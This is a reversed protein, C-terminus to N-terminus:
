SQFLTSPRPYIAGEDPRSGTLTSFLGESSRTNQALIYKNPSDKQCTPDIYAGGYVDFSMDNYKATKNIIDRVHDNNYRKKTTAHIAAVGAVQPSAMSTGQLNTYRNLSGRAYKTDDFGGRATYSSLIFDGPAFVDIQPGYNTYTSREFNDSTSLAGVCIVGKANAPSSGRSFYVWDGNTQHIQDNWHKHDETVAWYNSNGASSIVVVGDAIADEIDARLASYDAPQYHWDFNIGFDLSLGDTTWGSPNPNDSNYLRGGWVVYDINDINMYATGRIYGWSHNTITPNRYGTAPNIPKYKHFARLYDFILLSNVEPSQDSLIPLNYINAEQAWGYFQGAATGAVHTGHYSDTNDINEPYVFTDSTLSSGDDDIYGIYQNLQQYWQYQVFRSRGTSPSYWEECDYSILDDVIVVDVHKGDNFVTVTDQVTSGVTDSWFGKRRQSDNGACHLHGWQRNSPDIQAKTFQTPGITYPDNGTTEHNLLVVEIDQDQPTLQVDAVRPDQKLQSAEQDTLM